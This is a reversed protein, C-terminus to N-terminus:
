DRVGFVNSFSDRDVLAETVDYWDSSFSAVKRWFWILRSSSALSIRLLSPIRPLLPASAGPLPRAALEVRRRLDIQAPLDRRRRPPQLHALRLLLLVQGHRHLAVLRDGLDEVARLHLPDQDAPLDLRLAPEIVRVVHIRRESRLDSRELQAEVLLMQIQNQARVQRLYQRLRLRRLLLLPRQLDEGDVCLIEVVDGLGPDRGVEVMRGGELGESEVVLYKSQIKLLM